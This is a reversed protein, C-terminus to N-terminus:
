RHCQNLPAPSDSLSQLKLTVVFTSM